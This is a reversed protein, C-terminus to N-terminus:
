YRLFPIIHKLPFKPNVIKVGLKPGQASSNETLFQKQEYDVRNVTQEACVTCAFCLVICCFMCFSRLLIMAFVYCFMAFCLLFMAVCLLFM